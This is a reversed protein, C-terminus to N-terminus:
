ARMLDDAREDLASSYKISTGNSYEELFSGDEFLNVKRTVYFSIPKVIYGAFTTGNFLAVTGNAYSYTQVGNPDSRISLVRFARMDATESAPPPPAFWHKTGNSFLRV